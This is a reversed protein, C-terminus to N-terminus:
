PILALRRGHTTPDLRHGERWFVVSGSPDALVLLDLFNDLLEPVPDVQEEFSALSGDAATHAMERVIACAQTIQLLRDEVKRAHDRALQPLFVSLVQEDVLGRMARLSFWGFLLFPVVATVLLTLLFRSALTAPVPRIM